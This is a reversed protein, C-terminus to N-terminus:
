PRYPSAKVHSYCYPRLDKLAASLPREDFIIRDDSAVHPMLVMRERLLLTGEGYLVKRVAILNSVVNQQGFHVVTVQCAKTGLDDVQTTFKKKVGGQYDRAVEGGLVNMFQAAMNLKPKHAGHTISALLGDEHWWCDVLRKEEPAGKAKKKGTPTASKESTVLDKIVQIFGQAKLQDEFQALAGTRTSPKPNMIFSIQNTAKGGLRQLEAHVTDVRDIHRVQQFEGVSSVGKKKLFAAVLAATDTPAIPKDPQPPPVHVLPTALTRKPVETIPAIPPAEAPRQYAVVVPKSDTARPPMADGPKLKRPRQAPILINTTRKPTSPVEYGAESYKKLDYALQKQSIGLIQAAETRNGQVATLVDLTHTRIMDTRSLFRPASAAPTVPADAAENSFESASGFADDLTM